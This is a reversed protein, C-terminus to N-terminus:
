LFIFINYGSILETFNYVMYMNLSIQLLNYIQLVNHLKMIKEKPYYKKLLNVSSFYSLAIIFIVDIRTTQEILQDTIEM